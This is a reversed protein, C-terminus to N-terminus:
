TTAGDAGGGGGGGGGTCVIAPLMKRQVAPAGVVVKAGAVPAEMDAGVVGATVPVSVMGTDPTAAPVNVIDAVAGVPPDRM